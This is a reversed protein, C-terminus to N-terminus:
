DYQLRYVPTRYLELAVKNTTGTEELRISYILDNRVEPHAIEAEEVMTYSGSAEMSSALELALARGDKETLASGTISRHGYPDLEALIYTFEENM